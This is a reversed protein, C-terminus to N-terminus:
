KVHNQSLYNALSSKQLKSKEKDSFDWGNFLTKLAAHAYDAMTYKGDSEGYAWELNGSLVEVLIAKMELENLKQNGEILEILRLSKEIYASSLNRNKLDQKHLIFWSRIYEFGERITISNIEEPIERKCM